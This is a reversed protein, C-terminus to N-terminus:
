WRVMDPHDEIPGPEHHLVIEVMRPLPAGYLAELRLRQRDPIERPVRMMVVRALGIWPAGCHIQSIRLVDGPKVRCEWKEAQRYTCIPERPNITESFEMSQLHARRADM